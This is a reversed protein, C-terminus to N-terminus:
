AFSELSVGKSKAGEKILIDAVNPKSKIDLKESVLKILTISENSLRVQTM